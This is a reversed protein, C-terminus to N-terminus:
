LVFRDWGKVTRDRGGREEYVETVELSKRQSVMIGGGGAGATNNGVSHSPIRQMLWNESGKEVDVNKEVAAMSARKRLSRKNKVTHTYSPGATITVTYGFGDLGIGEVDVSRSLQLEAQTAYISLKPDLNQRSSESDPRGHVTSLHPRRTLSRNVEEPFTRLAKGAHKFLSRM